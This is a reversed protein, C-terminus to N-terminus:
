RLIMMGETLGDIVWYYEENRGGSLFNLRQIKGDVVAEVYTINDKIKVAKADVLLVDKQNVIEANVFYKAKMLDSITINADELNERTIQDIKIIAKGLKLNEDTLSDGSILKGTFTNEQRNLTVEVTVALGYPGKTTPDSISLFLASDNYITLIEQGDNLVDGENLKAYEGIIGDCPAVIYSTTGNLDYDAIVEKKEKIQKKLDNQAILSSEESLQNELRQVEIKLQELYISDAEYHIKTLQDGAHVFQGVSVVYRDFITNIHNATYDVRTKSPLYLEAKTEITETFDGRMVQTTNLVTDKETSELLLTKENEPIDTNNKKCGVTFILPLILLISAKNWINKTKFM